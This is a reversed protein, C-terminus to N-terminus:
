NGQGGSCDAKGDYLLNCVTLGMYKAILDLNKVSPFRIGREWQSVISVSVDLDHAVNNLTNGQEHRWARLREGFREPTSLKPTKPLARRKTKAPM